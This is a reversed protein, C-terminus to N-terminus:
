IFITFFECFPAGQKFQFGKRSFCVKRIPAGAQSSMSRNTFPTMPTITNM